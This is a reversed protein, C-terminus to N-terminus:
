QEDISTAIELEIAGNTELSTFHTVGQVLPAQKLTHDTIWPVPSDFEVRTRTGLNWTTDGISIM